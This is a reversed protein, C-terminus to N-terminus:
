GDWVIFDPEPDIEKMAKVASEVLAYPPDCEYHGFRGLEKEPIEKNCSAQSTFYDPDWHFDGIM